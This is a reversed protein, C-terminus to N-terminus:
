GDDSKVGRGGGAIIQGSVNIVYYRSLDNSSIKYLLFDSAGVVLACVSLPGGCCDGSARHRAVGCGSQRSWSRNSADEACPRNWSRIKRLGRLQRLLSLFSFPITPAAREARQGQLRTTVFVARKHKLLTHNRHPPSPRSALTLVRRRSLWRQLNIPPM